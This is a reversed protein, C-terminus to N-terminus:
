VEAWALRAMLATKRVERVKDGVSRHLLKQVHPASELLHRHEFRRPLFGLLMIALNRCSNAARGTRDVPMYGEPMWSVCEGKEGSSTGTIVETCAVIISKLFPELDDTSEQTITELVKLAVEVDPGVPLTRLVCLVIRILDAADEKYVESALHRVSSLVAISYNACVLDTEAASGKPWALPIMPKVLQLYANHPWLRKSISSYEPKLCSHPRFLLDFKRAFTQGEESNRPGARLRDYLAGLVSTGLHRRLIGAVVAYINGALHFRSSPLSSEKTPQGSLPTAQGDALCGMQYELLRLLTPVKEVSYKNAFLM